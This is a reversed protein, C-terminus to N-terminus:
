DEEDDKETIAVYAQELAFTALALTNRYVNIRSWQYSIFLGQAICLVALLITPETM